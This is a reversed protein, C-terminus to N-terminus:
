CGTSMSCWPAPDALKRLWNSSDRTCLLDYFYLVLLVQSELVVAPSACIATVLRGGASQKRLLQQLTPSDRLREAGPM